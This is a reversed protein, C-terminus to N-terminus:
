CVGFQIPEAPLRCTQTVGEPASEKPHVSCTWPDLNWKRDRERGTCPVEDRQPPQLVM